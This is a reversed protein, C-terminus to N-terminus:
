DCKCPARNTQMILRDGGFSWYAEANDAGFTLQRLHRLHTEQPTALDKVEPAAAPRPAAPTRAPEPCCGALAVAVAPVAWIAPAALAAPVGPIISGSRSMACKM